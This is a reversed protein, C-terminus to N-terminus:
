KNGDIKKFKKLIKIIKSINNEVKEFNSIFNNNKNKIKAKKIIHLYLNIM